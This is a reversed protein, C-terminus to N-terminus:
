AETTPIAALTVSAMAEFADNEARVFRTSVVM